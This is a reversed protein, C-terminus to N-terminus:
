GNRKEKAKKLSANLETDKGGADIAADQLRDFLEKRLAAIARQAHWAQEREDATKATRWRTVCREDMRDLSEGFVASNLIRGAELAKQKKVDAM